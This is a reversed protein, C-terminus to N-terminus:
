RGVKLIVALTINLKGVNLNVTQSSNRYKHSMKNFYLYREFMMKTVHNVDSFTEVCVKVVASNKKKIASYSKINLIPVTLTEASGIKVTDLIPRM